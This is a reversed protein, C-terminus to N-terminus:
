YILKYKSWSVHWTPGSGGAQFHSKDKNFFDLLIHRKEFLHVSTQLSVFYSCPFKEHSFCFDASLCVTQERDFDFADEEDHESLRPTEPDYCFLWLQDAREAVSALPLAKIVHLPGSYGDM